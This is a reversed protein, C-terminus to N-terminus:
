DTEESETAESRILDPDVLEYDKERLGEIIAPTAELTWSRDHMLLNAGPRLLESNVMIDALPEAEMYGSEWDYGYTWNMLVMGDEKVLERVHDTNQGFPARFFRPREGIIEEVLDSTKMIEETQEEETLSPLSPHTHTHNGIPFGMEHIDRLMQQGEESEIYMGNVFFIASADHEVLVEAIDVAYQDPADDYTLLAVQENAEEGDIVQVTAIDNENIEYLYTQVEEISEDVTEEDEVSDTETDDTNEGTEEDTTPQDEETDVMENDDGNDADSNECATLILTSALFLTALTRKMM